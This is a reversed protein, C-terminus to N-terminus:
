LCIGAWRSDETTADEELDRDKYDVDSWGVGRGKTSYCFLGKPCGRPNRPNCRPQKNPVCIGPADCAMGCSNPNRPDDKCKETTEDCPPPGPNIRFGGCSPYVNKWDCWGPCRNLNTCTDSDPKCYMDNPCPAIKFGCSRGLLQGVVLQSSALVLLSLCATIQM